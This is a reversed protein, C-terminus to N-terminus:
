SAVEPTAAADARRNWAEAMEKASEWGGSNVMWSTLKLSSAKYPPCGAWRLQAAIMPPLGTHPSPLLDLGHWVTEDEGLLAVRWELTPDVTRRYGDWDSFVPWWEPDSYGMGCRQLRETWEPQMKLGLVVRPSVRWRYPIKHDTPRADAWRTWQETM